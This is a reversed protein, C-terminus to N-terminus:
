MQSYKPLCLEIPQIGPGLNDTIIEEQLGYPVTQNLFLATIGDEQLVLSPNTLLIAPISVMQLKLIMPLDMRM